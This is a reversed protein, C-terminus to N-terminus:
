YNNNNDVKIRDKVPVYSPEYDSMLPRQPGRRLLGRKEKQDIENDSESDDCHWYAEEDSSDDDCHWYEEKEEESEEEDGFNESFWTIAEDEPDVLDLEEHSHSYVCFCYRMHSFLQIHIECRMTSQPCRSHFSIVVFLMAAFDYFM